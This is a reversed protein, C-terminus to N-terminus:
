KQYQHVKDKTKELEAILVNLEALIDTDVAKVRVEEIEALTTDVFSKDLPKTLGTEKCKRLLQDTFKQFDTNIFDIKFQEHIFTEHGPKIPKSKFAFGEADTLNLEFLLLRHHWKNFDFGLFLYHTNERVKEEIELPIKIDNSQKIFSNLQKHTYIYRGNKAACGLANYIIPLNEEENYEFEQKTGTFYKFIHKKNYKEFIRHLTDDPSLSIILKFDIQAIKKLLNNGKINQQQFCDDDSSGYYKIAKTRIHNESSPMFFGEQEDYKRKNDSIRKNFLEHLSKNNEDIAIEPGIFLVCNKVEIAEILDDFNIGEFENGNKGDVEVFDNEKALLSVTQALNAIQDAIEEKTSKIEPKINERLGINIDRATINQLAIINEGSINTKNSTSM